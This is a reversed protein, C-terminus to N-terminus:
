WVVFAPPVQRMGGGGVFDTVGLGFDTRVPGM